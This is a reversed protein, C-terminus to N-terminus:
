FGQRHATWSEAEEQDTAPAPAGPPRDEAEAQRIAARAHYLAHRWIPMTTDRVCETDAFVVAKLAALLQATQVSSLGIPQGCTPCAQTTTSM